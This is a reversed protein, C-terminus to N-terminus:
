SVCQNQLHPQSELCQQMKCGVRRNFKKNEKERKLYFVETSKILNHLIQYYESHLRAHRQFHTHAHENQLISLFRTASPGIYLEAFHSKAQFAEGVILRINSFLKPFNLYFNKLSSPTLKFSKTLIIFMFKFILFFITPPPPMPSTSARVVGQKYYLINYM